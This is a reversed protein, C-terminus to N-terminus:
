RSDNPPKVLGWFYGDRPHFEFEVRNVKDSLEFDLLKTHLRDATVPITTAGPKVEIRRSNSPASPVLQPGHGPTAKLRDARFADLQEGLTTGRTGLNAALTETARDRGISMAQQLRWSVLGRDDLFQVFRSMGYPYPSVVLAGGVRVYPPTDLPQDPYQLVYNYGDEEGLGVKGEFWTASAEEWWSDESRRLAYSYAHYLEHAAVKVKDGGDARVLLAQLALNPGQFSAVGALGQKFAGPTMFIPLRRPNTQSGFGSGLIETIRRGVIAGQLAQAVPRPVGTLLH